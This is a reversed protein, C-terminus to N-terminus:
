LIVPFTITTSTNKVTRPSRPNSVSTRQLCGWLTQTFSCQCNSQNGPKSIYLM